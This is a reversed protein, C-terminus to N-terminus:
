LINQLLVVDLSMNSLTTNWHHSLYDSSKFIRQKSPLLLTLLVSTPSRTEYAVTVAEILHVAHKNTNFDNVYQTSIFQLLKYM